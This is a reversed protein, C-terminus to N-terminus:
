DDQAGGIPPRKNRSDWDESMEHPDANGYQGVQLAQEFLKEREEYPVNVRGGKENVLVNRRQELLEYYRDRVANIATEIRFNLERKEADTEAM